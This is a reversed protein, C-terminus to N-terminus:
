SETGKLGLYCSPLLASSPTFDTLSGGELICQHTPLVPLVESNHPSEKNNVTTQNSHNKQLPQTQNPNQHPKKTKFKKQNSNEKINGKFVALFRFM